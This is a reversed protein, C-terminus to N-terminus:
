FQEMAGDKLTKAVFMKVKKSSLELKIKALNKFGAPIFSYVAAGSGSLAPQLGYEQLVDFIEDVEPYYQRVVPEFSNYFLSRKSFDKTKLQNVAEEASVDVSDGSNCEYYRDWLSYAEATSVHVSPVAILVPVEVEIKLPRVVEGRGSVLALGGYLFFPVDSGVEAALRNLKKISLGLNFFNNLFKIIAAANSSGGGLGSGPLIKKKVVIDLPPIKKGSEGAAERMLQLARSITNEHPSIDKIDFSIRDPGSSLPKIIIEDTLDVTQFLSEIEHYGDDRLAKIRLFLNLKAPSFLRLPHEMFLNLQDLSFPLKRDPL